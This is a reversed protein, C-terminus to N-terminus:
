KEIYKEYLDKLKVGRYIFNDFNQSQIDFRLLELEEKEKYYLDKYKEMEKKYFDVIENITKWMEENNM